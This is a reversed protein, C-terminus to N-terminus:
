QIIKVGDFLKEANSTIVSENESVGSVIRTYDDEKEGTQVIRLRAVGEEIIYVSPKDTAPDTIIATSPIFVGSDKGPAVLKATGFMGPRLKSESNIIEAEVIFSRSDQELSPRLAKVRGAFNRDPYAVVSVSVPTGVSIRGADAEPLSLSLKIPNTRVITAIVSSPSVFEGKSAPRSDVSGSFPAYIVTDAIAKQAIRVQNRASELSAKASAIGQNGQRASNKANEYEKLAAKARAATTEATTRYQDYTLRSTDGTKLLEAFRRENVAALKAEKTLILYNQYAAQVGPVSSVKFNGNKGVGLGAEAQRVAIVANRESLKAQRLQLRADSDDIRALVMGRRVFDGVDANISIIKGSVKPSVDSKEDEIFNGTGQIYKPLDKVTALTAEVKVPEITKAKTESNESNSNSANGGGCGIFIFICLISLLTHRSTFINRFLKM